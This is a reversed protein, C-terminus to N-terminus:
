RPSWGKVGGFYFAGPMPKPAKEEFWLALALALVLDDHAQERWAEFTANAAATIKMRFNLLERTLTDVEILGAAFWLRRSQLLTQVVGVLDKKPVHWYEDTESPLTIQSGATITVPVMRGGLSKLLDVVSRGVGTGDVILKSGALPEARLMALVDAVIAPYSTGLPWRQIHRVDYRPAVVGAGFEAVVLATFDQAQGLDLGAVFQSTM